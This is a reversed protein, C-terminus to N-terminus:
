DGDKSQYSNKEHSEMYLQAMKLEVISDRVFFPNGPNEKANILRAKEYLPEYQEPPLSRIIELAAEDQKKQDKNIQVAQVAAKKERTRKEEIEIDFGAYNNKLANIAYFLPNEKAKKFAYRLNLRIYSAVKGEEIRKFIEDLLSKIRYKEPIEKLIDEPIRAIQNDEELKEFLDGSLDSQDLQSKQNKEYTLNGTKKNVFFHIHSYKNRIGREKVLEYHCIIDTKLNVEEIAPALVNKKFDPFARYKNDGVGMLDRFNEITLVPISPATLYDRLFEYLVVAYSCKLGAILIINLPAYMSPNLIKNKLLNSFEFEVTGYNPVVIASALLSSVGWVDHKDKDLYNFEITIKALDKLQEKVSINETSPLNCVNKVDSITTKYFKQDGSKQAVYILFNILKRQTLTLNGVRTQIMSSHKRIMLENNEPM